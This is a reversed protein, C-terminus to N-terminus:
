VTPHTPNLDVLRGAEYIQYLIRRESRRPGFREYIQSRAEYIQSQASRVPGGHRGRGRQKVYLRDDIDEALMGSSADVAPPFSKLLAEAGDSESRCPRIGSKARLDSKQSAHVRHVRRRRGPQKMLLREHVDEVLVCLSLNIGSPFSKLLPEAVRLLLAGVPM